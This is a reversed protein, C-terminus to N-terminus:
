SPTDPAGEALLFNDGGGSALKSPTENYIKNYESFFIYGNGAIYTIFNNVELIKYTIDPM